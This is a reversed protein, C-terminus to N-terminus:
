RVNKNEEGKTEAMLQDYIKQTVVLYRPNLSLKYFKLADSSEQALAQVCLLLAAEFSIKGSLYSEM